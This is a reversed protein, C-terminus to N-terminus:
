WTGEPHKSMCVHPHPPVYEDDMSHKNEIVGQRACAANLRADDDQMASLLAEVAASAHARRV